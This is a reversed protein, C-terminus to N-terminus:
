TIRTPPREFMTQARMSVSSPIWPQPSPVLGGVTAILRPGKKDQLRGAVIMTVAFVAIAASFIGLIQFSKSDCGLTESLPSTFISFAYVSGLALQILLAGLVVVWRNMVRTEKQTEGDDKNVRSEM